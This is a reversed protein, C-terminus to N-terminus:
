LGIGVGQFAPKARQLAETPIQRVIGQHEGRVVRRKVTNLGPQVVKLIMVLIVQLRDFLRTDLRFFRDLHQRHQKIPLNTNGLHIECQALRDRM